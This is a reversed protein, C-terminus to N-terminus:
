LTCAMQRYARRLGKPYHNKLIGGSVKGFGLPIGELVPLVYGKSAECPLTEGAQYRLAGDLDVPIRPLAPSMWSMAWAHDPLFLKDTTEGLHVGLRLVQLGRLDPIDPPPLILTRGFCRAPLNNARAFAALLKQQSPAPAPLAGSWVPLAADGKRVMLAAFQGEGRMRHPYVTLMGTPGDAGPLHFARLSYDTHASLFAKVVEDNETRSFTCTSYVLRGGPRVMSAAHELIELQRRACGASAEPSWEARTELDRRFMGEGSCPADVLVADFSEAWRASLQQPMASIVIANPIGMREINRSLIQARKAVPENCVLTGKGAMRCAIQTSKGGPAACLDLVREGPRPDLVAVPLMAGPEQLYWAGAEHLPHLGAPSDLTIYRGDPEWPIVSLEQQDILTAHKMPNIRLGRTPADNMASLFAPFEDGLEEAMRQLFGKPLETM